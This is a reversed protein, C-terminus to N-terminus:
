VLYMRWSASRAGVSISQCAIRLRQLSRVVTDGVSFGIGRQGGWSRIVHGIFEREVTLFVFVSCM